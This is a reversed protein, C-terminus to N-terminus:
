FITYTCALDLSFDPTTVLLSLFGGISFLLIVVDCVTPHQAIRSTVLFYLIFFVRRWPFSTKHASNLQLM